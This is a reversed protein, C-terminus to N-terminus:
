TADALNAMEEKEIRLADKADLTLHKVLHKHFAADTYPSANTQLGVRACVDAYTIRQEIVNHKDDQIRLMAGVANEYAHVRMFFKDKNEETIEDMGIGVTHWIIADTIQADLSEWNAVKSLDYNLSMAVEKTKPNTKHPLGNIGWM